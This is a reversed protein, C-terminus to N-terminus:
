LFLSLSFACQFIFLVLVFWSFTTCLFKAVTLLLSTFERIFAHFSFLNFRSNSGPEPHVSAACKLCALRVFIYLYYFSYNVISSTITFKLPPRTLLVYIIQRKSLFLLFFNKSIDCLVVTDCSLSTM